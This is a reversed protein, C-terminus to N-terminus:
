SSLELTAAPNDASLLVSATRANLCTEIRNQLDELVERAVNTGVEGLVEAMFIARTTDPTLLAQKSQRWVFHRTLIDDGTTYAVEGAPVDEVEDSDLAHFSDGDRTPRLDLRFDHLEDVDFGGAPVIHKLSVVNYLDVLPNIFFPESNKLARRLMAEISSPFKKGPFGAAQFRERWPRVGHIRSRMAM